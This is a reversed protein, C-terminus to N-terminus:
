HAVASRYGGRALYAYCFGQALGNHADRSLARAANTQQLDDHTRASSAQRGIFQGPILLEWEREEDHAFWMIPIGGSISSAACSPAEHHSTKVLNLRGSDRDASAAAKVELEDPHQVLQQEADRKAEALLDSRHHRREGSQLAAVAGGPRGDDEGHSRTEGGATIM